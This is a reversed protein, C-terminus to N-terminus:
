SLGSRIIESFDTGYQLKVDWTQKIGTRENLYQIQKPIELSIVYDGPQLPGNLDKQYWPINIEFGERPALKGKLPPLSYNNVLKKDTGDPKSKYVVFNLPVTDLVITDESTNLISLKYPIILSSIGKGAGNEDLAELDIQKGTLDKNIKITGGTIRTDGASTESILNGIIVSGDNSQLNLGTLSTPSFIEIQHLNENYKSKPQYNVTAGMAQSFSRLPIYTENKYNLVVVTGNSTNM